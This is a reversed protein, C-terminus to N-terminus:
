EIRKLPLNKADLHMVMRVVRGQDDSEFTVSDSSSKSFFTTESEAALEQRPEDNEQIFLHNGERTIRRNEM